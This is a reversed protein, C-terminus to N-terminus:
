AARAQAAPRPTSRRVPLRHVTAGAPEATAHPEFRPEYRCTAIVRETRCVPCVLLFSLLKAANDYRSTSEHLHDCPAPPVASDMDFVSQRTLERAIPTTRRV